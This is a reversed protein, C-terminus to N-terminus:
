ISKYLFLSDRSLSISKSKHERLYSWKIYQHTCTHTQYGVIFFICFKHFIMQEGPWREATLLGPSSRRHKASHARTHTSRGTGGHYGRALPTRPTRSPPQGNGRAQNYFVLLLIAPLVNCLPPFNSSEQWTEENPLFCLHGSFFPSGVLM